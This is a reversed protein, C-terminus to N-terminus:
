EEQDTQEVPLVRCNGIEKAVEEALEKIDFVRAQASYAEQLILDQGNVNWIIVYKTM